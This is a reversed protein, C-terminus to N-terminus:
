EDPNERGKKILEYSTRVDDASPLSLQEPGSAVVSQAGSNIPVNSATYYFGNQLSFEYFEEGFSSEWEEPCVAINKKRSSAEDGQVQMMPLANSLNFTMLRDNGKEIWTGMIRYSYEPNWEMIQMLARIFHPCNITKMALPKGDIKCWRISYVDTRQCPRIAMKRETPHLLLQIYGIDSLKKTRASNFFLKEQYVTM